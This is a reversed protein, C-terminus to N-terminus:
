KLDRQRFIAIALVLLVAAYAAGYGISSLAFRSDFGMRNAAQSKLNFLELDPLIEYVM